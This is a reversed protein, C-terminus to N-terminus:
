YSSTPEYRWKESELKSLVQQRLRASVAPFYEEFGAWRTLEVTKRVYANTLALESREHKDNARTGAAPATTFYHRVAASHSEDMDKVDAEEVVEDAQLHASLCADLGEIENLFSGDSKRIM